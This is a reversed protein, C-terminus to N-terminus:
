ENKKDLDLLKKNVVIGLICVLGIFLSFFFAGYDKMHLMLGCLIANLVACVKCMNLNVKYMM